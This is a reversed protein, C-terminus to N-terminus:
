PDEGIKNKRGNGIDWAIRKRVLPSVKLMVKWVNLTGKEEIREMGVWHEVFRGRLYKHKM